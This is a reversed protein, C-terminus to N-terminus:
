FNVYSFGSNVSPVKNIVHPKNICVCDFLDYVFDIETKAGIKKKKKCEKQKQLERECQM